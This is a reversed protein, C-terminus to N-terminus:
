PSELIPAWIARITKARETLWERIDPEDAETINRIIVTRLDAKRQLVFFLLLSPNPIDEDPGYDSLDPTIWDWRFLLNLDPDSTYYGEALFDLGKGMLEPDRYGKFEAWSDHSVLVEPNKYLNARYNGETCYYPHEPEWLRTM